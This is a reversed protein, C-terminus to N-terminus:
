GRPTKKAKGAGTITKNFELALSIWYNLAAPTHLRDEDVHVYGKYVRGKMVVTHCGERAILADHIGPDIRCMIRGAGVTLCMKGNVMFALGGFMKKETVDPLETLAQRMRQALLDNYAM